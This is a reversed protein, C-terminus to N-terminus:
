AAKLPIRTAQDILALYVSVGNFLASESPLFCEHHLKYSGGAGDNVGLFMFTGPVKELYYAFDESAMSPKALLNVAQRGFTSGILEAAFDVHANDNYTVPYDALYRIEHQLRFAAATNAVMREFAALVNQRTQPSITRINGKLLASEAIINSGTGAKLEGISVVAADLPDTERSVISQLATILHAGGLVADIGQHPAAGHGSVGKLEIEFSDMSAMLADHRLGVTGVPLDPWVHFGYICDIDPHNLAGDAILQKGGALMEEAPQFIFKVTGCLQEKRESLIKAATLLMATHGDHGCAHMVNENQSQFDVGTQECIPLADMDARLGIVPGPLGGRLIGVVGTGAFGTQVEIGFSALEQQVLASTQYEQFALEPNQHIHRRIRTLYAQHEASLAYREPINM